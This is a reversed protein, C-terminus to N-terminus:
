LNKIIIKKLIINKTILVVLYFKVIKKNTKFKNKLIESTYFIYDSNGMITKECAEM